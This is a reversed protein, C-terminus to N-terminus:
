ERVKEPMLTDYCVVNGDDTTIIFQSPRQPDWALCEVDGSTNWRV